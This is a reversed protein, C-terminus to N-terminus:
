PKSGETFGYDEPKPKKGEGPIAAVLAVIAAVVLADRGRGCTDRGSVLVVAGYVAFV